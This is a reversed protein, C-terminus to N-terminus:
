ELSHEIRENLVRLALSLRHRFYDDRNEDALLMLLPEPDEMAYGMFVLVERWAPDWAKRDILSQFADWGEQEVRRALGLGALYELFTRHLFSYLAEADKLGSNQLIGADKFEDLLDEVTLRSYKLREITQRIAAEVETQKFDNAEPRRKFLEWATEKLVTLRRGLDDFDGNRGLREWGRKILTVLAREYLFGRRVGAPLKEVQYVVCAMSAVLPSRCIELLSPNSQVFKWLMEGRKKGLWRGFLERIRGPTFPVLEYATVERWPIAARDYRATRCTLVIRCRWGEIKELWHSVRSWKDLPVQDMADLFLWACENRSILAAIRRGVTEPIGIAMFHMVLVDEAEGCKNWGEAVEPLAIYVPLTLDELSFGQELQMRVKEIVQLVTWRTLITKGGGPAGLIVVRRAQEMEEKWSVEVKGEVEAPEEYYSALEPDVHWHKRDIAEEGLRIGKKLVRPPLVIQTLQIVENKEDYWPSRDLKDQLRDIYKKIEQPLGLAQQAAQKLSDVQVVELSSDSPEELPQAVLLKQMGYDRCAQLKVDLHAVKEPVGNTVQFSVALRPDLSLKEGLARLGVYLAGGGSPGKLPFRYLFHEQCSRLPEIRVLVAIELEAADYAHQLTQLFDEEMPRLHIQAPDPYIAVASTELEELVWQVLVGSKYQLNIPVIPFNAKVKRRGRVQEGKLLLQLLDDWFAAPLSQVVVQLAKAAEDQCLLGPLEKPYSREVWNAHDALLQSAKLFIKLWAWLWKQVYPIRSIENFIEYGNNTLEELWSDIVRRNRHLADHCCRLFNPLNKEKLAQSLQLQKM